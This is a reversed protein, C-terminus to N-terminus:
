GEMAVKVEEAAAEAKWVAREVARGAKKREEAVVTVAVVTVAVVTVAVVAVAMRVAQFYIQVAVAAMGAVMEQAVGVTAEVKAAVQEGLVTEAEEVAVERTEARTEAREGAEAVAVDVLSAEVMAAETM